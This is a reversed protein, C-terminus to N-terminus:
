FYEDEGSFENMFFLKSDNKLYYYTKNRGFKDFYITQYVSTIKAVYQTKIIKHISEHRAGLETRERTQHNHAQNM